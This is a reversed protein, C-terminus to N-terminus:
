LKRYKLAQIIRNGSESNGLNKLNKLFIRLFVSLVALLLGGIIAIVIFKKSVKQVKLDEISPKVLSEPANDKKPFGFKFGKEFSDLTPQQIVKFPTFYRHDVLYYKTRNIIDQSELRKIASYYGELAVIKSKETVKQEKSNSTDDDSVSSGITKRQDMLIWVNVGAETLSVSVSLAEELKRSLHDLRLSIQDLDTKMKGQLISASTLEEDLQSMKLKRENSDINAESEEIRLLAQIRGVLLSAQFTEEQVRQWVQIMETLKTQINFTEGPLRKMELKLSPPILLSDKGTLSLRVAMKRNKGNRIFYREENMQFYTGEAVQALEIGDIKQIKALMSAHLVKKTRETSRIKRSYLELTKERYQDSLYQDLAALANMTQQPDETSVRLKTGRTCYECSLFQLKEGNKFISLLSQWTTLQSIGWYKKYIGAAGTVEGPTMLDTPYFSEAQSRATATPLIEWQETLEQYQYELSNSYQVQGFYQLAGWASGLFLILVLLIQVKYKVLPLFINLLDIEDEEVSPMVYAVLQQQSVSSDDSVVKNHKLAKM